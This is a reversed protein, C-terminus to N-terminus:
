IRSGCRYANIAVTEKASVLQKGRQSRIHVLKKIGTNTFVICMNPVSPSIGMLKERREAPTMEPSRQKVTSLFQKQKEAVIQLDNQSTARVQIDDQTIPIVSPQLPIM